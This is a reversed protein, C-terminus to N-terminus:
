LKATFNDYQQKTIEYYNLLNCKHKPHYSKVLSIFVDVPHDTCVCTNITPNANEVAENNPFLKDDSVESQLIMMYYKQEM